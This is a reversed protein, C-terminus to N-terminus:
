AGVTFRATLARLATATETLQSGASALMSMSAMQEQTIAANYRSKERAELALREIEHMGAVHQSLASAQQDIRPALEDIFATTHQLSTLLASLAATGGTSATSIDAIRGRGADIRRRMERTADQVATVSASVDASAQAAHEALKRVEDAVVGFGRGHEGARAAEIAANLSLLNTQQAIQEMLTVFESVQDRSRELSGITETVRAFDTGVEALLTGMAEVRATHVGMGNAVARAAGASRIADDRAAENQAAVDSVTTRVRSVLTAQEDAETALANAATGIRTASSATEQAAAAIQVSSAALQESKEQIERVLSGLTSVMSNVSVALFGIDDLAADTIETGLDGQEVAALFGRVRRVRRTFRSPLQMAAFTLFGLHFVELGVIPWWVPAGIVHFSIVRAVGYAATSLLLQVRAVAPMGLAMNIASLIFFPMCLYGYPGLVAVFFALVMVDLVMNLWFHWERAHGRRHLLQAVENLLFHGGQVAIVAGYGIHLIGWRYELATVLLTLGVLTRRQRMAGQHRALMRLQNERQFLEDFRRPAAPRAATM